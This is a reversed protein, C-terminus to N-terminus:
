EEWSASPTESEEYESDEEDDDNDNYNVSPPAQPPQAIPADHSPLDFTSPFGIDDVIQNNNSPTPLSRENQNQNQSSIFNQLQEQMESRLTKESQLQQQLTKILQSLHNLASTQQTILQRQSQIQDKMENWEDGSIEFKNAVKEDSSQRLQDSSPAKDNLSSDNSSQSPVQMSEQSLSRVDVFWGMELLFPVMISSCKRHGLEPIFSLKPYQLCYCKSPVDPIVQWGSRVLIESELYLPQITKDNNSTNIPTNDFFFQQYQILKNERYNQTYINTPIIFSINASSASLLLTTEGQTPKSHGPLISLSLKTILQAIIPRTLDIFGNGVLLLIRMFVAEAFNYSGEISFLNLQFEFSKTFQFAFEESFLETLSSNKSSSSSSSNNNNSSNNSNHNDLAGWATVLKSLINAFPLDIKNSLSIKTHLIDDIIEFLHGKLDNPTAHIEDITTSAALIVTFFHCLAMHCIAINTRDSLSDYFSIKEEAKLSNERETNSKERFKDIVDDLQIQSDRSKPMEIIQQQQIQALLSNIDAEVTEPEFCRAQQLKVLKDLHSLTIEIQTDSDQKKSEWKSKLLQHWEFIGWECSEMKSKMENILKKGNEINQSTAAVALDTDLKKVYSLCTKLELCCFFFNTIKCFFHLPNDFIM